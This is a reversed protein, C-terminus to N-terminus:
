RVGATASRDGKVAGPVFRISIPYRFWRGAATRVIALITFAFAALFSGVGAFVAVFFWGPPQGDNSSSLWGVLAALGTTLYVVQYVIHFNLAETSNHRTFEDSKDGLVRILIPGILPLVFFSAHSLTALT